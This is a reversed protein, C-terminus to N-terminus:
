VLRNARSLVNSGSVRAASRSAVSFVCPMSRSASAARSISDASSRRDSLSFSRTVTPTSPPPRFGSAASLKSSARWASSCDSCVSSVASPRRGDCRERGAWPLRIGIRRSTSIAAASPKSVAIVAMSPASQGSCARSSRASGRIASSVAEDDELDAALPTIREDLERPRRCLGLVEWGDALLRTAVNGGSIGTVGVVLARGSM